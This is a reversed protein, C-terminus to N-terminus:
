QRPKRDGPQTGRPQGFLALSVVTFVALLVGLLLLSRALGMAPAGILLVAPVSCLWLAFAFLWPVGTWMRM